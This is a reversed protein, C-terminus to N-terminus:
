ESDLAIAISSAHLDIEPLGHPESIRPVSVAKPRFM